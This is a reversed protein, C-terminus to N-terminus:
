PAIRFLADREAASFRRNRDVDLFRTTTSDGNVQVVRVERLALDAGAVEIARIAGALQADRPTLGIQWGGNADTARFAIEYLARLQPLDGALVLRFADVFSRVAPQSALDIAHQDAATGMVLENGRLLLTSPAPKEVHRVLRDPPAFALTGESVLPVQLLSLQKEERFRASLGPMAAFSAILADLSPADRAVAPSELLMLSSALLWALARKQSAKLTREL